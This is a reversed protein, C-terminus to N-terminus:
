VEIEEVVEFIYDADKLPNGNVKITAADSIPALAPFEDLRGLHSLIAYAVDKTELWGAQTTVDSLRKSNLTYHEDQAVYRFGDLVNEVKKAYYQGGDCKILITTAKARDGHRKFATVFIPEFDGVMEPKITTRGKVVKEQRAYKAKKAGLLVRPIGQAEAEGYLVELEAKAEAKKERQEKAKANFERFKITSTELTRTLESIRDRLPKIHAELKAVAEEREKRALVLEEKAAKELKEADAIARKQAGLADKVEAFEDLIVAKAKKGQVKPPDKALGLKGDDGIEAVVAQRAMAREGKWQRPPEVNKEIYEVAEEFSFGFHGMDLRVWFSEAQGLPTVEYTVIKWDDFWGEPQYCNVESIHYRRAV